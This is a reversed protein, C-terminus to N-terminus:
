TLMCVDKGKVLVSFNGIRKCPSRYLSNQGSSFSVYLLALTLVARMNIRSDVRALLVKPSLNFISIVEVSTLLNTYVFNGGWSTHIWQPEGPTHVCGPSASGRVFLNWPATRRNLLLNCIIDFYPLFLFGRVRAAPSHTMSTNLCSNHLNGLCKWSALFEKQRPEEM